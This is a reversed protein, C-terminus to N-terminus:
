ESSEVTTSDFESKQGQKEDENKNSFTFCFNCVDKQPKHFALDPFDAKIVDRYYKEKVLKQPEDAYKQCFLEYMQKINMDKELFRKPNRSRLLMPISMLIMSIPASISVKQVLVHKITAM